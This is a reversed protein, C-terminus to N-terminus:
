SAYEGFGRIARALFTEYDEELANTAPALGLARPSVAVDHAPELFLPISLRERGTARVRHETARLRGGTVAELARGTNIVFSDCAFPVACWRGCADRVELGGLEDHYLITLAGTDVHTECALPAGDEASIEIPALDAPYSNLRLTTMSRPREFARDVLSADGGLARALARVLACGLEFTADFYSAVARHWAGGLEPPLPTIEHFPRALLESQSADLRPDALDLGEKGAASSPFYGRYRHSSARNWRRPAAVLKRESPLAFFERAACQMADISSRPVGHGCVTAFGIRECADLLADAARRAPPGDVDRAVLASVDIRPIEEHVQASM